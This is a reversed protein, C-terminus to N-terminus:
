QKLGLVKLASKISVKIMKYLYFIKIKITLYIPLKIGSEAFMRKIDNSFSDNKTFFICLMSYKVDQYRELNFTGSFEDLCGLCEIVLLTRVCKQCVSCNGSAHKHDVCVYLNKQVVESSVLIKIKESRSYRAGESQLHLHESSLLPLIIPDACGITDSPEVRVDSYSRSAAYLYDSVTNGLLHAVSANRFTHTKFFHLDDYVSYFDDLNSEIVILPLDLARAGKRAHYLRNEFLAREDTTGNAGVNNFVLANIGGRIAERWFHHDKLVSYSDVGGSFGTAVFKSKPREIATFSGHHVIPIFGYGLVINIISQLNGECAKLLRESVAGNLIIRSGSRMAPLILAILACNLSQDIFEEYEAQIKFILNDPFISSVIPYSISISGDQERTTKPARVEVDGRIIKKITNDDRTMTLDM